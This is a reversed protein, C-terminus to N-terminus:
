GRLFCAWVEGQHSCFSPTMCFARVSGRDATENPTKRQKMIRDNTFNQTKWGVMLPWGWFNELDGIKLRTPDLYTVLSIRGILSGPSHVLFHRTGDQSTKNPM